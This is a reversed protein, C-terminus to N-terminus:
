KKLIAKLQAIEARIEDVKDRDIAIKTTATDGTGKVNITTKGLADNLIDEIHSLMVPADSIGPLAAVCPVPQAVPPVSPAAASTPMVPPPQVVPPPQPTAPTQALVAAGALAFAALVPTLRRTILRM